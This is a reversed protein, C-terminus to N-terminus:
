NLVSAFSRLLRITTGILARSALSMTLNVRTPKRKIKMSRVKRSECSRGEKFFRRSKKSTPERYLLNQLFSSNLNKSGEM